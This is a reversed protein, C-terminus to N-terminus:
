NKAAVACRAPVEQGCALLTIPGDEVPQEELRYLDLVSDDDEDETRVPATDRGLWMFGSGVIIVAAVAAALAYPMWWSVDSYQQVFDNM